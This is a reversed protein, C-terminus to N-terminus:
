PATLTSSALAQNLVSCATRLQTCLILGRTGAPRHLLASVFVLLLPPRQMDQDVISRHGRRLTLNPLVSLLTQLNGHSGVM